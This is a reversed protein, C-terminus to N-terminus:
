LLLGINKVPLPNKVCYPEGFKVGSQFGYYQHMGRMWEIFQENSLRTQPAKSKGKAPEGAGFQTQYCLVLKLKEEFSDSIDVVLDADIGYRNNFHLVMEPRYPLRDHAAVKGGSAADYKRVGALWAAYLGAQGVAAHDPHQDEWHPVLLLRPRYKRLMRVLPVRLAEDDRLHGDRLGLNERAQLQLLRSAAATEKRRVAVSGRTGLEGRTIDIVGVRKGARRAKVLLGGCCLEADDPHPAFVLIDVPPM